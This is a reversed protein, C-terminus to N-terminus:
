VTGHANPVNASGAGIGPHDQHRHHDHPFNFKVEKCRKSTLKGSCPRAHEGVPSCPRRLRPLLRDPAQHDWSLVRALSRSRDTKTNHGRPTIAIGKALGMVRLSLRGARRQQLGSPSPGFATASATQLSEPRLSSCTGADGKFPDLESLKARSESDDNGIYLGLSEM